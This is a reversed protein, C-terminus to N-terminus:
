WRETFNGVFGWVLVGAFGVGLIVLIWSMPLGMWTGFQHYHRPRRTM